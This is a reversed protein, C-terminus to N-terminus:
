LSEEFDELRRRLLGLPNRDDPHTVIHFGAAKTHGGGGQAKCFAGVDWESAARLSYVIKLRGDGVFVAYGAVVDAPGGALEPRERFMESADSTPVISNFAVVQLGRRTTIRASGELSQTCLELRREYERAGVLTLMSEWSDPTTGILTDPGWFRIASALQQSEIWRPDQTQWTDRIGALTVLDEVRMWDETIRGASVLPEWVYWFALLAGGVGPNEIEDGFAGLGREVFRLVTDKCKAHHDLVIAEVALFDDARSEPPSMDCFLMGPEAVMKERADSGYQVFEVSADPLALKLIMASTTGDACNDHTVVRTVKKLREISIM